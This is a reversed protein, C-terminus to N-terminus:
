IGNDQVKKIWGTDNEYYEYQGIHVWINAFMHSIFVVQM